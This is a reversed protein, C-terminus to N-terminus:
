YGAIMDMRIHKNVGSGLLQMTGLRTITPMSINKGKQFAPIDVTNSVDIIGLRQFTTNSAHHRQIAAPCGFATNRHLLQQGALCYSNPWCLCHLISADVNHIDLKRSTPLIVHNM